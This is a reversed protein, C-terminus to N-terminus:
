TRSIYESREMVKRTDTFRDVCVIGNLHDLEHQVVKALLGTAVFKFKKGEKDFAEVTVKNPRRVPGFLQAHALSGCGEYLVTQKKSISLIRPNVFVRVPDVEKLNKRIKTKRLETVFVRLNIGIQPAAMGVLENARMSDVLDKILRQVAAAEVREVPKSKKRLIPNGVQVTKRIM